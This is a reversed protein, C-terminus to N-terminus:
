IDLLFKLGEQYREIQKKTPNCSLNHCMDAIKVRRAIENKKVDNLYSQYSQDKKHTLISVANIVTDPINLKRMDDTTFESDELVDHLWGTAIVDRPQNGLMKVVTEPHNIYPTIGDRRFQGSHAKVAMDMATEILQNM